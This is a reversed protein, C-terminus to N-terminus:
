EDNFGNEIQIIDEEMERDNNIGIVMKVKNRWKRSWEKYETRIISKWGSM